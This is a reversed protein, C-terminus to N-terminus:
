PNTAEDRGWRGLLDLLDGVGVRGDRDLDAPHGAGCPGWAARLIALDRRDVVENADLDGPSRSANLAASRPGAEMPAEHEPRGRAFGSVVSPAEGWGGSSGEVRAAEPCPGWGELVAFLDIVGVTGDRNIDCPGGGTDAWAHLVALLDAVGVVGDPTQRCDAPCFAVGIAFDAAHDLNAWAFGRQEAPNWYVGYDGPVGTMGWDDGTSEVVIRDGIPGPHGPSNQTNGAVALGWNGVEPDFYTVDVALPDAGMLDSEDFPITVNEFFQGDDLSTDLDMICALESYGAADPHPETSLETVLVSANDPGDLNVIAVQASAVPSPDGGTPILSVVDGRDFDDDSEAPPLMEYEGEYAGMDVIGDVIRPNGDLDTDVGVPIASNDGANVCPSGFSLRVNDTGSQVFLPDTNINHGGPGSWGGQIDSYHVTAVGPASLPSEAIQDPSNGWAISNTLTPNDEFMVGSGVNRSVTCNIVTSGSEGTIYLGGGTEGTNRSFVCNVLSNRNAAAVMGGAIWDCFNRIFTSNVVQARGGGLALGGAVYLSSNDIFACGQVEAYEDGSLGLLAGGASLGSNGAFTCAVLTAATAGACHIGGGPGSSVNHLFDCGFLAPNSPGLYEDYAIGGGGDAFNEVFLCGSIPPSSSRANHIAGGKRSARNHSFICGIIAPSSSVNHMGGGNQAFNGAFTCNILTPSGDDNFMGGGLRCPNYRASACDANGATITFGHLVATPDTDSGMVVTHSNEGNNTFDPGDDGALDGSLITPYLEIDWEDPDPAGIGAYGGLLAVRNILQFTAERDGTGLPNLEDRDPLYTGQAVRIESVGHAPESAFALADQLFGYASQWGAGNGGPLADDDVFLVTGADAPYSMGGVVVMTLGIALQTSRLKQTRM